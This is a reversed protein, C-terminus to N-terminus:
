LTEIGTKYLSVVFKKQYHDLKSAMIKISIKM